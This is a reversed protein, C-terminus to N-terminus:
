SVEQYWSFNPDDTMNDEAHLETRADIVSLDALINHMWQDPTWLQRFIDDRAFLRRNKPSDFPVDFVINPAFELQELLAERISEASDLHEM